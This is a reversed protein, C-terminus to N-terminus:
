RLILFQVRRASCVRHQEPDQLCEFRQYSQANVAYVANVQAQGVQQSCYGDHGLVSSEGPEVMLVSKDRVGGM